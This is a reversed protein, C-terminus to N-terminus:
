ERWCSFRCVRPASISLSMLCCLDQLHLLFSTFYQHLLPLPDSDQGLYLLLSFNASATLVQAETQFLGPRKSFMGSIVQVTVTKDEAEELVVVLRQDM